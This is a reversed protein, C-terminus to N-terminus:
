MFNYTQCLIHVSFNTLRADFHAKCRGELLNRETKCCIDFLQVSVTSTAAGLDSLM